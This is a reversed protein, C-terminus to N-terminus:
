FYTKVLETKEKPDGLIQYGTDTILFDEENRIGGFEKWKILESYNIFSDHRKEAAWMDILTPIFYVGPEITLVFGKELKRALRLSKIGFQTSKAEGNYGVWVEGLNEMDHVDLGMMHGLGCPFFMAHAGAMVAEQADGKMVGISKMGEVIMRCSLYYVERFPVGPRLAEVAANHSAAVIDYITKQRATFKGSIPMTSSLDGCYGSELEAGSDILLMDGDKLTNGYYHNHLTEGNKTCIIPFAINGGNELATKRIIAMIEYEKMGARAAKMGATHMKYSITAAKDIQEREQDSKYNRMNVVAKVFEVSKKQDQEDPHIGLLNFIKLRHEDRYPPLYHVIQGKDICKTLYKSLEAIPQSEKIGVELAQDSISKQPGTWVVSDITADNGFIIERDQDIDIIAALSPSHHAGFFYLFTSDQRFHYQNDLYNMPSEENGLFLLVGKGVSKKLAQRRAIYTSQSFM